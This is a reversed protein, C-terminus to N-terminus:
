RHLLCHRGQGWPHQEVYKVELHYGTERREWEPVEEDQLEEDLGQQGELRISEIDDERGSDHPNGRRCRDGSGGIWEPDGRRQKDEVGIHSRDYSPVDHGIRDGNCRHTVCTAYDIIGLLVCELTTHPCM